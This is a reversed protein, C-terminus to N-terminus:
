QNVFNYKLEALTWDEPTDIDQAEIASIEFAGKNPDQFMGKKFWYFQAADYYAPALDQSRTRLHKKEIMAIKGTQEMSFARQIPYPFRVMPRVSAFGSTELVDLGKKLNQQTILPATALILCGMGYAVHQEDLKREVEAMVDALTAFDDAAEKSRLFPVSAGFQVAKEAIEEDETSVIVEKFLGSNLAVKISYDLIPKGLFSKLNKRSIRKSGGRAPIIAIRGENMFNGSPKLSLLKSKM